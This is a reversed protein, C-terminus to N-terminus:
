RRNALSLGIIVFLVPAICIVKDINPITPLVLVAGIYVTTFIVGVIIRVKSLM